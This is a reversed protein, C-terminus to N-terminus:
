YNIKYEVSKIESLDINISTIVEYSQKSPISQGIYGILTKVVEGNENKLIIDVYKIYKAEEGNNIVNTTITTEGNVTVMKTNQAVIGEGLDKDSTVGEEVNVIPESSIDQNDKNTKKGCGTITILMLIIIFVQLNKKM